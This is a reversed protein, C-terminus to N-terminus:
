YSRRKTINSYLFVLGSVRSGWDRAPPCPGYKLDGSWKPLLLSTWFIFYIFNIFFLLTHRVSLCLPTYLRTARPKFLLIAKSWPSNLSLFLAYFSFRKFFTSIKSLKSSRWLTKWKLQGFKGFYCSSIEFRADIM